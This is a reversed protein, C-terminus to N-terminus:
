SSRARLKLIFEAYEGPNQQSPKQRDGLEPANKVRRRYPTVHCPMPVRVPPFLRPTIRTFRKHKYFRTGDKPLRKEGEEQNGLTLPGLRRVM